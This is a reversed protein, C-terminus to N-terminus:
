EVDAMKDAMMQNREQMQKLLQPLLEKIKAEDNAKQANILQVFLNTRDGLLIGKGDIGLKSLEEGAQERTLTGDKVQTRIAEIKAKVDDPLQAKDKFRMDKDGLGLKSLEERAQDQTM